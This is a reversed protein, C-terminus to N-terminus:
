ALRPSVGNRHPPAPASRNPSTPVTSSSAYSAIKPGPPGTSGANPTRSAAVFRGPISSITAAWLDTARSPRIPRASCM